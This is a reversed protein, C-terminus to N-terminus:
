LNLTEQFGRGGWSRFEPGDIPRIVCWADDTLEYQM